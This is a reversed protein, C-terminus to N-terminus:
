WFDPWRKAVRWTLFVAHAQDACYFGASCTELNLLRGEAPQMSRSHLARQLAAPFVKPNGTVSHRVDQCDAM